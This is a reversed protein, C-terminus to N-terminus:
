VPLSVIFTTKGPASEVEITGEHKEVIKRVIDLGLGSGEGAVKTTFFPEFIKPLIEPPIGPGSDTIKVTIFDPPLDSDRVGVGHRVEIELTGKNEMAQLANHILNTWVQNLEDPYCLIPPTEAYRRIVEVGHKLQNHYLTLITELGDTINAEVKEGQTGHRAYSRLAFVVKAARDIATTITRTSNQLTAFQYAVNLVDQSNGAKLLPLLADVDEYVGIDVLTDVMAAVNAMGEAELQRSLARRYQRKERSSFSVGQRNSCELLVLFDRNQEPPLQQFFEPLGPLKETLFKNIYKVSSRIAGLPTNIEHAVGAILQGLAAMKEAQVLEQQAAKLNDLAQEAVQRQQQAEDFLRANEIAIAAQNAFTQMIQADEQSFTGIQFSDATLIGIAKQGAVLPVGMWGRVPDAETWIQWNPDERVDAIIYPHQQKFIQAEPLTSALSVSYGLYSEDIGVGGSLILNDGAQLFLGGSDFDVVRALQEIIKDLVTEQDLSRNLVAAVERLSEAVQRQRQEEEFLRANEIAIAAQNAITMMLDVDRQEFDRQDLRNIATITGLIRDQYQLPAVIIAGSGTELRRQQVAESERSDPIGKPSLAPKLERLAWGSLGNLLEDVSVSVVQDEGPGSKVFHTVQRQEMDLAILTVRDAPLLEAVRETITQLLDSLSNYAVLSRTIHYLTETRWLTARLSEEAREREIIEGKLQKNVSTLEATREEVLEELHHRHRTLAAENRKRQTIDRAITQYSAIRGDDGRQVASSLLGNIVSGDKRRLDIEFNEVFGDQEIMQRFLQREEPHAYFDQVNFNALAERSYGMLRLGAPNLDILEGNPASIVIADQSNDFLGRYKRESRQLTIFSERLRHAMNDFSVALEGVEDARDLPLSVSGPTEAEWEGGALRKATANIDRIPKIVWNATVLGIGLAALLALVSLWLTLRTNKNVEAMFDSEPIVVVTLWDLGFEDRFPTVQILQREGNFEFAFQQSDEIRALSGSQTNLYKASAQLLPNPSDVAALRIESEDDSLGVLPQEISAAVLLLGARDVIYILGNQGAQITSLFESIQALTLNTSAVAILRGNSDYLPENASITLQQDSFLTYIDSWAPGGQEVAAKYWPRRRPDYDPRRSVETTRRGQEDTDWIELAGGTAKGAVAIRLQGPKFQQAESYEGQATGVSILGITDFQQVQYWFHSELMASNDANLWGLRLADANIRNVKHPPDLYSELKQEVRATIEDQLQHALDDVAAQGSRFSLYSILGGTILILIAFPVILTVRLSGKKAIKSMWQNLSQM